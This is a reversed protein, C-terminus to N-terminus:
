EHNFKDFISLITKFKMETEEWEDEAISKEVIGAGSKGQPIPNPCKKKKYNKIAENYTTIIGESNYLEYNIDAIIATIINKLVEAVNEGGGKKKRRYKKKKSGKISNNLRRLRSKM